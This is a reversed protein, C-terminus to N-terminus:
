NGFAQLGMLGDVPAEGKTRKETYIKVNHSGKKDVLRGSAGFFRNERPNTKISFSTLKHTRYFSYKNCAVVM